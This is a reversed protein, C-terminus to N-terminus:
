SVLWAIGLVITLLITFLCFGKHMAYLYDNNVVSISVFLSILFAWGM